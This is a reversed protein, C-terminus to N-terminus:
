FNVGININMISAKIGIDCEIFTSVKKDTYLQYGLGYTIHPILFHQYEDSGGDPGAIDIINYRGYDLGGTLITYFQKSRFKRIEYNISGFSIFKSYFYCTNISEQINNRDDQHTKIGLSIGNVVGFDLSTKFNSGSLSFISTISLTIILLLANKENRKQM